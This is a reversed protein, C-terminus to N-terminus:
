SRKMQSEEEEMARFKTPDQPVAVSTLFSPFLGVGCACRRIAAASRVAGGERKREVVAIGVVLLAKRGNGEESM